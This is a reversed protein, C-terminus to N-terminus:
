NEWYCSRCHECAQIRKQALFFHTDIMTTFAVLIVIYNAAVVASLPL